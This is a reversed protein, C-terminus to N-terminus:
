CVSPDYLVMSLLIKFVTDSAASLYHKLHSTRVEFMTNIRNSLLANEKENVVDSFSVTRGNVFVM